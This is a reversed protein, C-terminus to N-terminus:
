GQFSARGQKNKKKRDKSTIKERQRRTSVRDQQIVAKNERIIKLAQFRTMLNIDFMDHILPNNCVQEAFHNQAVRRISGVLMVPRVGTIMVLQSNSTLEATTPAGDFEKAILQCCWMLTSQDAKKVLLV